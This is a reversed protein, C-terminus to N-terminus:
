TTEEKQGPESFFLRVIAGHEPANEFRVSAGPGYHLWMRARSNQIGTGPGAGSPILAQNDPDNLQALQEPTFGPGDDEITLRM